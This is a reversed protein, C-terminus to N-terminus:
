WHRSISFRLMRPHVPTYQPRTRISFPNGFAFSDSKSDLLNDAEACLRWHGNAFSMTTDVLAYDSMKRDLAADFSLRASGIYRASLAPEITWGSMSFKRSVSMRLTLNPVVPLRRDEDFGSSAVPGALLARQYQLGGNISWGSTWLAQITADFGWIHGDGINRTAALGNDLLIDSQIDHWITRFATASLTLHEDRIVRGGLEMTMLEDSDFSSGAPGLGGPRFASAYRAFIMWESAPRWYLSVSPTVGTKTRSLAEATVNQMHENEIASHFVRAGGVARFTDWLPLSLEGFAAWETIKQRSQQVFRTMGSAVEIMEDDTRNDVGLYSLGALWRVAAGGTNSLRIEGNVVRFDRRDSYLAAGSVGFYDAADAADFRSDVEHRVTSFAATLEAAGVSGALTASAMRFDNDHPERLDTDRFRSHREFVYQSDAVHLWQAMGMLDFTWGTSPVARLALRGGSIELDNVDDGHPTDIWGSEWGAYAAARVGIRGAKVPLNLVGSVGGAPDGSTMLSGDATAGGSAINLDPKRTVIHYVGGLAGTGYLPGQPGKLLEVREVDVLRLDPDPASYTARTEDIHISVTSQSPGNFPSDAVGRIFQRNRGPGLNTLALGEVNSAVYATGSVSNGATERPLSIVSLSLPIDMLSEDRKSATVVIDTLPHAVPGLQVASPHGVRARRQEIRYVAAGLRRAFLGTGHLMKELAHEVSMRGNVPSVMIDPMPGDMGISIGAQRSLQALANALSGGSIHLESDKAFASAPAVINATALFM